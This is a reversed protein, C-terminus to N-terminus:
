VDSLINSMSYHGGKFKFGLPRIDRENKSLFVFFYPFWLTFIFLFISKLNYVKSGQVTDWFSRFLKLFLVWSNLFRRSIFKEHFALFNFMLVSVIVYFHKVNCLHWGNIILCKTSACICQDLFVYEIKMSFTTANTSWCIDNISKKKALSCTSKRRLCPCFISKM